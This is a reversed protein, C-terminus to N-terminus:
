VHSHLWQSTALAVSSHFKVNRNGKLKFTLPVPLQRSHDSLSAGASLHPPGVGLRPGTPKTRTQPRPDGVVARDGLVCRDEDENGRTSHTNVRAAM